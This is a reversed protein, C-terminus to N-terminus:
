RLNKLSSRSSSGRQVQQTQNAMRSTTRRLDDSFGRNQNVYSVSFRAYAAADSTYTKVHNSIGLNPSLWVPLDYVTYDPITLNVLSGEPPLPAIWPYYRDYEGTSDSFVDDYTNNPYRHTSDALQLFSSVDFHCKETWEHVWIWQDDAHNPTGYTYTTGTYETTTFPLSLLPYDVESEGPPTVQIIVELTGAPISASGPDPPAPPALNPWYVGSESCYMGQSVLLLYDSRSGVAQLPSGCPQDHRYYYYQPSTFLCPCFPCNNYLTEPPIAVDESCWNIVTFGPLLKKASLSPNTWSDSM